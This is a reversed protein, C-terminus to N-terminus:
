SEPSRRPVNRTPASWSYRSSMEARDAVRKGTPSTADERTYYDSPFPMLCMGQKPQAIFDCDDARSLDVPALQCSALQRAMSASAKSIRKGSRARATVTRSGCLSAAAKGRPTLPITVVRKARRSFKLVRPRTVNWTGEDFSTTRVVVRIRMRRNSAVRVRIGKGALAKQGAQVIAIWPKAPKASSTAPGSEHNQGALATGGFSFVVAIAAAVMSRFAVRLDVRGKRKPVAGQVSPVLRPM